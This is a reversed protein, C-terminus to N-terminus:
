YVFLTAPSGDYHRRLDCHIFTKAVGVSVDPFMELLMAVFARREHAPIAFDVACTGFVRGPHDYIHYSNEAGGITKNHAMSRCCSNVILPRGWATRVRDLFEGFGAALRLEGSDKCQLEARSFYKLNIDTM